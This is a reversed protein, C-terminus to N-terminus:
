RNLFVRSAKAHIEELVQPSLNLPNLTYVDSGDGVFGNRYFSVTPDDSNEEEPNIEAPKNSLPLYKSFTDKIDKMGVHQILEALDTMLKVLVTSSMASLDPPYENKLLLSLFQYIEKYEDQACQNFVEDLANSYDAKRAMNRKSKDLWEDVPAIKTGKDDTASKKRLRRNLYYSVQEASKSGIEMSIQEFWESSKSVGYQKFAKLLKAKECITWYANVEESHYKKKKKTISRSM